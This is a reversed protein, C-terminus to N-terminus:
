GRQWFGFWIPGNQGARHSLAEQGTKKRQGSIAVVMFRTDRAFNAGRATACLDRGRGSEGGAGEGLDEIGGSGESEFAAVGELAEDFGDIAHSEIPIQLVFFVGIEFM